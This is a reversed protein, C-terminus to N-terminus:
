YSITVNDVLKKAIITVAKKAVTESLGNKVLCEVAKNNIRVKHKKNRERAEAEDILRQKEQEAERKIRAEAEILDRKAQEAEEKLQAERDDTEQKVRIAEMESAKKARDQAEKEIQLDRIKQKEEAEKKDIIAQKKDLEAQREDMEKQAKKQIEQQDEFEQRESIALHLTELSIEIEKRADDILHEFEINNVVINNAQHLRDKLYDLDKGLLGEKFDVIAKLKSELALVRNAEEEEAAQALHEIKIDEKEKEIKYPLEVKLIFEEIKKAESDILRGQILVSKKKEKRKEELKKLIGRMEKLGIKIESYGKKTGADPVKQYKEELAFLAIETLQKDDNGYDIMRIENKEVIKAGM